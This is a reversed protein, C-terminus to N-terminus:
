PHYSRLLALIDPVDRQAFDKAIEALIHTHRKPDLESRLAGLMHPPAILILPADERHLSALVQLAAHGFDDERRQHRDANEYASRSPVASGFSRGPASTGMARSPPNKMAQEHLLELDPARDTGRNRLLQMHSGDVVLITTDHPILM